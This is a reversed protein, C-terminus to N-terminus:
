LKSKAAAIAAAIATEVYSKTVAFGYHYVSFAVVVAVLGLIIDQIM